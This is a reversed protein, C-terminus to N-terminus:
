EHGISARNSGAQCIARGIRGLRASGPKNALHCPRQSHDDARGGAAKRWRMGGVPRGAPWSLTIRGIRSELHFDIKPWMQKKAEVKYKDSKSMPTPNTVPPVNVICKHFTSKISKQSAPFVLRRTQATIKLLFRGKRSSTM